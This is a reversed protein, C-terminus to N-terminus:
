KNNRKERIRQENLRYEFEHKKDIFILNHCWSCEARGEKNVIYAYHGCKCYRKYPEKAENHLKREAFTMRNSDLSVPSIKRAM